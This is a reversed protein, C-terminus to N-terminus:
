DAGVRVLDVRRAVPRKIIFDQTLGPLADASELPPVAALREHDAAALSRAAVLPLALLQSWHSLRIKMKRAIYNPLPETAEGPDIEPVSVNGALPRSLEYTGDIRVLHPSADADLRPFRPEPISVVTASALSANRCAHAVEPALKRLADPLAQLRGRARLLDFLWKGAVHRNCDRRLDDPLELGSARLADSLAWLDRSPISRAAPTPRRAELERDTGQLAELLRAGSVGPHDPNYRHKGLVGFAVQDLLTQYTHGYCSGSYAGCSGGFGVHAYADQQCHLAVGLAILRQAHERPEGDRHPVAAFHEAIVDLV